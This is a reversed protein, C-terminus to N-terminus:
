RLIEIYKDYIKRINMMNEFRNKNFLNSIVSFNVINSMNISVMYKDTNLM